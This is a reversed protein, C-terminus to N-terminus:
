PFTYCLWGWCLWGSYGASWASWQYRALLCCKGGSDCLSLGLLAECIEEVIAGNVFGRLLALSTDGDGGGVDLVRGLVTVVGM